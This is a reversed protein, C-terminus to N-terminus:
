HPAATVVDSAYGGGVARILAVRADLARAALEVAQNRQALLPIESALVNLYNGLGAKFRQVAIEHAAEAAAQAAQQQVQQRAISKVSVLQDAVDHIADFVAANYSEVAADYDATKGILNARLRGGEFIPLRLAPGVGWQTSGPDLLRELGISSFGAFANLNINPYFQTKANIIDHRAAEVRWRAAVIDARRGLLDAQLTSPNAVNKIALLQVTVPVQHGNPQAILAALANQALAQQELLAEIHQRAEPVSGESQSLELRTDLGANVRDRVLNLAEERLALARRAVVLQENLRVITFYSRVVNASLLVQAAQADAQAAKVTGLAADLTARYKGFFDLEWSASFQLTGSSRESGALPAPVAGNSTYRQHTFDLGANVQPLLAADVVETVARARVLRSQVLKLNPNDALAQSILTNLQEDGFERWWSTSALEVPTAVPLDFSAANRVVATPEIGSMIACATLSTVLVALASLHLRPIQQSTM